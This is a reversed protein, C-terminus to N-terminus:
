RIWPMWGIIFLVLGVVPLVPLAVWLVAAIGGILTYLIITVTGIVLMILRVFAGILRSVLRDLFAHFKVGLPGDVHGASIQRFPAFLTKVLLDLSFYDMLGSLREGLGSFQRRWGQGYWWSLLGVIFMIKNYRM